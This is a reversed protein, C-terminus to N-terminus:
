EENPIDVALRRVNYIDFNPHHWFEELGIKSFISRETDYIPYMGALNIRQPGGVDIDLFSERELISPAFIFFASMESEDSIREGFNIVDGYCFACKGRLNNAIDAVALPWALDTSDVSITLEPRGLLWEPHSIESLGYTLGTISGAEPIDRYVMCVVKPASSMASELPFFEPEVGFVQDLHALYRSLRDKPTTM